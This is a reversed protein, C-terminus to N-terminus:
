GELVDDLGDGSIIDDRDTGERTWGKQVKCDSM